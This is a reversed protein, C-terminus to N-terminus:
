DTKVTDRRREYTVYSIPPIENPPTERKTELWETNDFSPFRRDGDPTKQKVWTIHLTDALPLAQKYLQEGGIIFINGAPITAKATAIAETLSGVSMGGNTKPLVLQRSVVINFRKPLFRGISEYTRRGMIVTNGTTLSKFRRLDAGSHWPLTNNIGIVWDTGVAAILSLM